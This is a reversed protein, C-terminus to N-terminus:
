RRRASGRRRRRSRARVAAARPPRRLQEVDAALRGPRARLADGHGDLLLPHQRDHPREGVGAGDDADVRHVGRRREGRDLGAGPDDVVHRAAEGVRVHEGGDGARRRVDHESVPATRGGVHVRPRLVRIDDGLHEGLEALPDLRGRGGADRGGADDDVRADAEALLALLVPRRQAAEVRM